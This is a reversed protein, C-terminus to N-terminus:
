GKHKSKASNKPESASAPNAREFTLSIMDKAKPFSAAISSAGSLEHMLIPLQKMDNFVLSSGVIQADFTRPNNGDFIFTVACNQNGREGCDIRKNSPLLMVPLDQTANKYITLKTNAQEKASLFTEGELQEWTPWDEPLRREATMKQLATIQENQHLQVQAMQWLVAVLVGTILLCLLLGLWHRKGMKHVPAEAYALTSNGGSALAVPQQYVAVHQSRQATTAPLSQKRESEALAAQWDTTATGKQKARSLARNYETRKDAQLLYFRASQLVKSSLDGQQEAADIAEAIAAVTAIESVGLVAYLNLMM